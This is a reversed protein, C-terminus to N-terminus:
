ARKALASTVQQRFSQGEIKQENEAVRILSRNVRFGFGNLLQQSVSATFGPVFAPDFLLHRQTSGQRQFSYSVAFCM